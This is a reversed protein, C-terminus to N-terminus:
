SEAAKIYHIIRKGGDKWNDLLSAYNDKFLNEWEAGDRSWISWVITASFSFEPIEGQAPVPEMDYVSEALEAAIKEAKFADCNIIIIGVENSKFRLAWGSGNRRIINKLIGAIRIMAEDGASHGRSDVLAKFRDPKLMILTTPDKLVGRIEDDILTQKWLGTGPDEYARRHLEQVWSMNELVLKRTSKIRGTIMIIANLLINCVTHPEERSLSDITSDSYPFVILHSNEAAEACADYEAGRAFDFDGITDGATFRAMEEESGDKNPKFVRIEGSTLIYFRSAKEGLSFLIEGKSLDLTGSHSVVFDIQNKPLSSFLETKQLLSPDVKKAKM